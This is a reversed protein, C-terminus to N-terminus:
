KEFCYLHNADTCDHASPSVTSTWTAARIEGAVGLEGSEASTWDVCRYDPSPTGSSLTGTWVNAYDPLNVETGLETIAIPNTAAGRLQAKSEFAVTGDLMVYRAEEIRDEARLLKGGNDKGSLWAVYEGGLGGDKAAAACKADAGALGGLNAKFVDRTVFVRKTARGARAERQELCLLHREQNCGLVYTTEAGFYSAHNGDDFLDASTWSRCTEAVEGGASSGTWFSASTVSASANGFKDVGATIDSPKAGKEDPIELEAGGGVGLKSAYLRTKGDVAYFPGDEAVHDNASDAGSSLYAVWTGTLGAGKAASTCLADGAAHGDKAGGAASVLDGTYTASTVFARLGLPGTDTAAGADPGPAQPQGGLDQTSQCAVVFAGLTICPLFTRM